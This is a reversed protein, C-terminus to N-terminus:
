LNEGARGCASHLRSELVLGILYKISLFIAAITLTVWPGTIYPSVRSGGALLVMNKVGWPAVHRNLRVAPNAFGGEFMVHDVRKGFFLDALANDGVADGGVSVIEAYGVFEFDEGVDVAGDDIGLMEVFAGEDGDLGVDADDRGVGEGQGTGDFIEFNRAVDQGDAHTFGGVGAAADDHVDRRELGLPLAEYRQLNGIGRRERGLNVGVFAEALDEEELGVFNAFDAVGVSFALVLGLLADDQWFHFLLLNIYRPCEQGRFVRGTSSETFNTMGFRLSSDARPNARFSSDPLVKRCCVSQPFPVVETTGSRGPFVRAEAGSPANERGEPRRFM